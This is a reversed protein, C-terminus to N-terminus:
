VEWIHLRHTLRLGAFNELADHLQELKETWYEDDPYKELEKGVAEIKSHIASLIIIRNTTTLKM